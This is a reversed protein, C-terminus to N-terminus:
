YVVYLENTIPPDAAVRQLRADKAPFTIRVVFISQAPIKLRQPVRLEELVHLQADLIRWLGITLDDDEFDPFARLNPADTVFTGVRNGFRVNEIAELFALNTKTDFALEIRRFDLFRFDNQFFEEALM